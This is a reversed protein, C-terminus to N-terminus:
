NVDVGSGGDLDGDLPCVHGVVLGHKELILSDFSLIVAKAPITVVDYWPFPM